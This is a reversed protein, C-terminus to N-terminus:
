EGVEDSPPVTCQKLNSYAALQPGYWFNGFIRDVVIPFPSLNTIRLWARAQPLKGGAIVIGDGSERVRM